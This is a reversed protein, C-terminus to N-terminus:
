PALTADRLSALSRNAMIEYGKLDTRAASFLTGYAISAVPGECALKAQVEDYLAKRKTPDQIRRAEDLAKDISADSYKFVNTSGGTRFTRYFFEDPDAGGANASAFLDFNSNRWDQVFQGTEQNLLEVTIGAEALEAQVVQAIDKIDQRAALVRLTLKQGVTFGAEQLLVRARQVDHRYCPFDSVPRAWQKLAPSLPGAPVGAGFLAAEIIAQRDLAYNVAERVKPDNFPPRSVNLGIVTNSLELTQTLSINPKGKLQLATAADIQPLLAYQGSTLGVQRTSSEPVINFKLGELKPKGAERYAENRALLVFGNPQWTEFRFPGTGVPQKQLADRNAEMQRPVIAISALGALLPASPEKLKVEVTLPDVATVTDLAALRSALPSGIEKSQVRRFSAAVDESTMPAGNHFTVGSRLKFSYSLGDQSVTWSEALSPVIRLDKDIATLGEYITGNVIVASSFATIIHPDLGAPSSDVAIQLPAAVAQGSFSTGLAVIAACILRLRMDSGM